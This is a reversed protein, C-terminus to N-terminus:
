QDGQWSFAVATDFPLAMPLAFGDNYDTHDGILNVRGPAAAAFAPARGFREVFRNHAPRDIM